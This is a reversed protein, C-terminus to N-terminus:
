TGARPSKERQLPLSKELWLWIWLGKYGWWFSLVGKWRRFLSYRVSYRLKRMHKSPMSLFVDLILLVRRAHKELDKILCLFFFFTFFYLFTVGERSAIVILPKSRSLGAWASVHGERPLFEYDRYRGGM